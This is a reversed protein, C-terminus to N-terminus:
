DLRQTMYHCDIPHFKYIELNFPRNSQPQTITMLKEALETMRTRQWFSHRSITPKQTASYILSVIYNFSKTLVIFM